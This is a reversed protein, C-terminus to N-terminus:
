PSVVSIRDSAGKCGGQCHWFIIRLRQRAELISYTWRKVSTNESIKVLVPVFQKLQLQGLLTIVLWLHHILLLISCASHGVRVCGIPPVAVGPVVIRHGLVGRLDPVM